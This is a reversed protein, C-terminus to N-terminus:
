TLKIRSKLFADLGSSRISLVFRLQQIQSFYRIMQKTRFYNNLFHQVLLECFNRHLFNLQHLLERLRNATKGGSGPSGINHEKSAFNNKNKHM